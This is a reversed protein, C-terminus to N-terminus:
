DSGSCSASGSCDPAPSFSPEHDATAFSWLSPLWLQQRSLVSTLAVVANFAGLPVYAFTVTLALLALLALWAAVLPLPPRWGTM